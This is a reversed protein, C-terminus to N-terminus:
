THSPWKACSKQIKKENAHERVSYIEANDAHWEGIKEIMLNRPSQLEEDQM